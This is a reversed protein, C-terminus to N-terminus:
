RRRLRYFREAPRLIPDLLKPAQYGSPGEDIVEWHPFAAEIGDRDVGRILPRRKEPWVTLIVTADPAAISDIERGMAARQDPTFDHFTGTDLILQYGADVGAARLQTVDGEVWEVEVCESAARDRARRVAKPVFDIGTVRWGRKALAVAWIGSGTGIDLASGYPAHRQEEERAILEMLRGSFAPCAEADEWPHFGIAYAVKYNM